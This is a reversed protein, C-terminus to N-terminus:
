RDLHSHLYNSIEATLESPAEMKVSMNFPDMDLHRNNDKNDNNLLSHARSMLNRSSDRHMM